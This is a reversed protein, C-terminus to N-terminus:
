TEVRLPKLKEWGKYSWLNLMIPSYLLGSVCKVHNAGILKSKESLKIGDSDLFTTKEFPLPRRLRRQKAPWIRVDIVAVDESIPVSAEMEDDDATYALFRVQSRLTM